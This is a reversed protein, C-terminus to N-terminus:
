ARQEHPQEQNSTFTVRPNALTRDLDQRIRSRARHLRSRVTGAPIGLADSIEEYSLDAWAHLLLVDREDGSLRALAGALASSAARADIKDELDELGCPAELREGYRALARLFRTEKRRHEALVRAAIGFLWPRADPRAPDYRGRADFARLFTEAALEDALDRNLRRRLFGTIASGHRDVLGAFVEPTRMSAEILEADTAIV